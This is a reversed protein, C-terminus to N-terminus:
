LIHWHKLLDLLNVREIQLGDMLKGLRAGEIHALLIFFSRPKMIKVKLQYFTTLTNRLIILHKLRWIFHIFHFCTLDASVCNVFFSTRGHSSLSLIILKFLTIINVRQSRTGRHSEMKKRRTRSFGRPFEQHLRDSRVEKKQSSWSSSM